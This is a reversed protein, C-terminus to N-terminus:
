DDDLSMSAGTTAYLASQSRLRDYGASRTMADTANFSKNMAMGLANTHQTADFNAGLFIVEWNRAEAQTVKEKVSAQTFDRSEGTEGGDTVFVLITRELDDAEAECLAMGAADWLPTGGRPRVVTPDLAEFASIPVRNLLVHYPDVSDFLILSVQADVNDERLGEVYGNVAGITEIWNAAMSGSRDVLIKINLM